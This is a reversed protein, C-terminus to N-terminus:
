EFYRCLAILQPRTMSDLTLEDEFLKAHKLIEENTPNEDTTRIKKFFNAFDQTAQNEASSKKSRMAIDEVTDQMFKAMKLKISLEGRLRAERTSKDEFTSPLLRPFLRIVIPLALEAFPIIIFISFPALRFIDSLARKFQNGERRTLTKGRLIKWLTKSAIRLDLGLLRFGHYYHMVEAKFRDWLPKKPPKAVQSKQPQSASSEAVKQKQFEKLSDEVKSKDYLFASTHLARQNTSAFTYFPTLSNSNMVRQRNHSLIGPESSVYNSIRNELGLLGLDRAPTVYMQSFRLMSRRKAMHPNTTSHFTSCCTCRICQRKTLLSKYLSSLDKLHAGVANM